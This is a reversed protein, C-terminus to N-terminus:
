IAAVPHARETNVGVGQQRIIQELQEDVRGTPVVVIIRLLM